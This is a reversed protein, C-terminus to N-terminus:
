ECVVYFNILHPCIEKTTQFIIYVDAFTKVVINMFFLDIKNAFSTLFPISFYKMLEYKENM